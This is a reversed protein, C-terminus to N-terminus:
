LRTQAGTLANKVQFVAKDLGPFFHSELCRAVREGGKPIAAHDHFKQSAFQRARTTLIFAGGDQQTIQVVEFIDVVSITM